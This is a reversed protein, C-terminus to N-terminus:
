MPGGDVGSPGPGRDFTLSECAVTCPNRKYGEDDKGLAGPAGVILTRLPRDSSKNGMNGSHDLGQDGRVSSLSASQVDSLVPLSIFCQAKSGFLYSTQSPVLIWRLSLVDNIYRVSKLVCWRIAKKFRALRLEVGGDDIKTCRGGAQRKLVALIIATSLKKGVPSEQIGTLLSRM